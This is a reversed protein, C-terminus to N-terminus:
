NMDDVYLVMVFSGMGLRCTCHEHSTGYGCMILHVLFPVMVLEKNLM